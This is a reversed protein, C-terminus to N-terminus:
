DGKSDGRQAAAAATPMLKVPAINWGEIEVAPNDGASEPLLATLM